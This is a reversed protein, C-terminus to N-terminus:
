TTHEDGGGVLALCLVIGVPWGTAMDEFLSLALVGALTAWQWRDLRVCRGGALALAGAMVAIGVLGVQSALSVWTNHSHAYAQGAVDLAALGDPGVGFAPSTEWWRALADRILTLRVGVTAPRWAFLAVIGALVVPAFLCVLLRWPWFFWLLRWPWFFWAWVLFVVGIGLLAGRSGGLVAVSAVVAGPWGWRALMSPALAVIVHGLYNRNLVGTPADGALINVLMFGTLVLGVNALDRAWERRALSQAWAALGFVLWSALPYGLSHYALTVVLAGGLGGSLAARWTVEVQARWLWFVGAAVLVFALGGRWATAEPAANNWALGYLLVWAAMAFARMMSFIDLVM